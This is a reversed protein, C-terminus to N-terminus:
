DLTASLIRMRAPPAGGMVLAPRLCAIRQPGAARATLIDHLEPVPRVARVLALRLAPNFRAPALDLRAAVNARHVVLRVAQASALVRRPSPGILLQANNAARFVPRVIASSLVAGCPTLLRGRAAGPVIGWPLRGCGLVPGGVRRANQAAHLKGQPSPVSSKLSGVGHVATRAVPFLPLRTAEDLVPDARVFVLGCQLETALNAPLHDGRQVDVVVMVAAGSVPLGAPLANPAEKASVAIPRKPQHAVIRLRKSARSIVQSALDAWM